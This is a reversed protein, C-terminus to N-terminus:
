LTAPDIGLAKLKPELLETRKEAEDARAMVEMYTEFRKGDPRTCVLDKGVLELKVGTRPSIWGDMQPLLTLHEGTRLYGELGGGHPDFIYYEEVGYQEYFRHKRIMEMPTNTPSLIEM